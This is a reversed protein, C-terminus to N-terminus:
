VGWRPHCPHGHAKESIMQKIAKSVQEISPSANLELNTALQPLCTIGDDNIMSPHDFVNNLHEAWRELIHKKDTLLTSGDASLMPFM